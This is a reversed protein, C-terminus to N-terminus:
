RGSDCKKAVITRANPFAIEHTVYEDEVRFEHALVDGDAHMLQIDM